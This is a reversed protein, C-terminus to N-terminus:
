VVGPKGVSKKAGILLGTVIPKRHGVSGNHQNRMMAKEDINLPLLFYVTELKSHRSTNYTKRKYTKMTM